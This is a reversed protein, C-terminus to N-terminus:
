PDRLRAPISTSASGFFDIDLVAELVGTLEESRLQIRGKSGAKFRVFLSYDPQPIVEVIDWYM